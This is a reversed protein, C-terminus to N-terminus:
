GTAMYSRTKEIHLYVLFYHFNVGFDIIKCSFHSIRASILPKKLFYDYKQLWYCYLNTYISELGNFRILTTIASRMTVLLSRLSISLLSVAVIDLHTVFVEWGVKSLKISIALASFHSM